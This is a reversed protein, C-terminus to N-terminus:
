DDVTKDYTTSLFCCSRLMRTLCDAVIIVISQAPLVANKISSAASELQPFQSNYALIPTSTRRDPEGLYAALQHECLPVM